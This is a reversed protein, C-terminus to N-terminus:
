CIQVRSCSNHIINIELYTEREGKRRIRRGREERGERERERRERKRVCHVPTTSHLIDGLQIGGRFCRQRRQQIYMKGREGKEGERGRGRKGGEGKM